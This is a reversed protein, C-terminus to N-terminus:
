PSEALREIRGSFRERFVVDSQRLVEDERRKMRNMQIAGVEAAAVEIAEAHILEAQEVRRPHVAHRRRNAERFEAHEPAGVREIEEILVPEVQEDFLRASAPGTDIRSPS